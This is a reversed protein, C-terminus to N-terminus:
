KGKSLVSRISDQIEAVKHFVETEKVGVSKMSRLAAEGVESMIRNIQEEDLSGIGIIKKKLQTPLADVDVSSAPDGDSPGNRKGIENSRDEAEHVSSDSDVDENDVGDPSSIFMYLDTNYIRDGLAGRAENHGKPVERIQVSGNPYIATVIGRSVENGMKTLVVIPEGFSIETAELSQFILGESLM